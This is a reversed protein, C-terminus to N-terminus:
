STWQRVTDLLQEMTFPKSLYGSAGMELTHQKTRQDARATVFIVPIHQTRPNSRLANLVQYGDITQMVLDCLILDPQYREALAIGAEGCTATHTSFGNFLLSESINEGISPEDDIILVCGM